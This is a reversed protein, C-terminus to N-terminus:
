RRTLQERFMCGILDNFRLGDCAPWAEHHRLFELGGDARARVTYKGEYYDRTESM